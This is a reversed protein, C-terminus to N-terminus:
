DCAPATDARARLLQWTGGSCGGFAEGWVQWLCYEDGSRDVATDDHPHHRNARSFQGVGRGCTLVAVWSRALIGKAACGEGM